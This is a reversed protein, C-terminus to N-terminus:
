YDVNHQVKSFSTIVADVFVMQQHCHLTVSVINPFNGVNDKFTKVGQFSLRIKEM